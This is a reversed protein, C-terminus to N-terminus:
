RDTATAQFLSESSVASLALKDAHRMREFAGGKEGNVRYRM